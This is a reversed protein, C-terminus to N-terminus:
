SLNSLPSKPRYRVSPVAAALKSYFPPLNQPAPACAAPLRTFVPAGRRTTEDTKPRALLQARHADVYIGRHYRSRSVPGGIGHCVLSASNFHPGQNYTGHVTKTHPVRALPFSPSLARSFWSTKLLDDTTTLPHMSGRRRHTGCLTHKKSGRAITCLVEHMARLESYALGGLICVVLRRGTSPVEHAAEAAASGGPSGGRVKAFPNFPKERAVPKGIEHKM